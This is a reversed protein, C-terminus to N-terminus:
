RNQEMIIQSFRKESVRHFHARRHGNVADQVDRHPHGYGNPGAAAYGILMQPMADLVLDSHNHISGHHPLMLVNTLPTLTSLPEDLLLVTPRIALAPSRSGSSSAARFPAATESVPGQGSERHHCRRSRRHPQYFLRDLSDIAPRVSGFAGALLLTASRDSFSPKAGISGPVERRTVANLRCTFRDGAM